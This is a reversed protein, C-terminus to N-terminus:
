ATASAKQNKKARLGCANCLTKPGKPGKRWEPSETTGCDTCVHVVSTDKVRKKRKSNRDLAAADAQDQNAFTSPNLIQIPATDLLSGTLASLDLTPDLLQAATSGTSIGNSREGMDYRLGTFMQLAESIDNNPTVGMTYVYPANNLIPQYALMDIDATDDVFDQTQEGSHESNKRSPQSPSKSVDRQKKAKAEGIQRELMEKEMKLELFTDILNAANNPYVKGTAFFCLPLSSQRKEGEGFYAHGVMELSVYTSDNKQFRYYLHFKRRQLCSERFERQFLDKDDLHIFDSIQHGILDKPAYGFLETTAPSCYMIKGQPSLVHIFDELKDIIRQSWNKRRTFETLTGRTAGQENTNRLSSSAPNFSFTRVTYAPQKHPLKDDKTM